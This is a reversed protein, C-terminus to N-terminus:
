VMAAHSPMQNYDDHSMTMEVVRAPRQTSDCLACEAFQSFLGMRRAVSGTLAHPPPESRRMGKAVAGVALATAVAAAVLMWMPLSRTGIPIEGNNSSTSQADTNSNTTYSGSSADSASSSSSSSHGGTAENM